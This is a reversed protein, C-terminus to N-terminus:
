KKITGNYVFVKGETMTTDSIIAVPTGKQYTTTSAGEEMEETWAFQVNEPNHILDWQAKLLANKDPTYDM